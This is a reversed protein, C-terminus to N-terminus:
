CVERGKDGARIIRKAFESLLFISFDKLMFIITPNTPIINM